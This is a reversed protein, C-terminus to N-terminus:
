LASVELTALVALRERLSCRTPAAREPAQCASASMVACLPSHPRSKNGTSPRAFSRCPMSTQHRKLGSSIYPEMEAYAYCSAVHEAAKSVLILQRLEDQGSELFQLKDRAIRSIRAPDEQPPESCAGAQCQGQPSAPQASHESADGSCPLDDHASVNHRALLLSCGRIRSAALLIRSLGRVKHLAHRRCISRPMAYLTALPTTPQCLTPVLQGPTCSLTTCVPSLPRSITRDDLTRQPSFLTGRVWRRLSGTATRGVDEGACEHRETTAPM